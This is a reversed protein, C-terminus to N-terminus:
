QGTYKEYAEETGDYKRKQMAMSLNAVDASRGDLGVIDEQILVKVPTQSQCDTILLKLSPNYPSVPNMVIQFCDQMEYISQYDKKMEMLVEQFMKHRTLNHNILSELMGLTYAKHKLVVIPNLMPTSVPKVGIEKEIREAEKEMHEKEAVLRSQVNHFSWNRVDHLENLISATDADLDTTILRKNEVDHNKLWKRLTRYSFIDKAEDAMLALLERQRFLSKDNIDDYTKADVLDSDHREELLMMAETTYEDFKELNSISASILSSLAILADSITTISFQKYNKKNTNESM